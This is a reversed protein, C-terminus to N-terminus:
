KVTHLGLSALFCKTFLCLLEVRVFWLIATPDPSFKGSLSPQIINEGDDLHLM